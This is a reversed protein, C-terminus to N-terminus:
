LVSLQTKGVVGHEGPLQFIFLSEVDLKYTVRLAPVEQANITEFVRAFSYLATLMSALIGDLSNAAIM